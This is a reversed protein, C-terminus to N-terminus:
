ARGREYKESSKITLCDEVSYIPLKYVVDGIAVDKYFFDDSISSSLWRYSKCFNYISLVSDSDSATLFCELIELTVIPIDKGLYTQLPYSEPTVVIKYVKELKDWEVSSFKQTKYDLSSMCLIDNAKELQVQGRNLTKTNSKLENISDVALVAKIECMLAERPNDKSVIFLDVDTSIGDAEIEVEYEFDYEGCKSVLSAIREAVENSRNGIINAADDRYEKLQSLLKLINREFKCNLVILPSWSVYEDTLLIPQIFIDKNEKRSGFALLRVIRRLVGERLRTLRKMKCFFSSTPVVQVPSCERQPLGSRALRWYAEQASLSWKRLAIWFTNFEKASIGAFVTTDSLPIVERPIEHDPFSKVCSIDNFVIRGSDSDTKLLCIGREDLVDRGKMKELQAELRSCFGGRSFVNKPAFTVVRDRENVSVNLMDNGFMVYHSAVTAYESAFLLLRGALEVPEDNAIPVPDYLKGFLEQYWKFAWVFGEEYMKYQKAFSYVHVKDQVAEIIMRFGDIATLLSYLVIGPEYTWIRFKKYEQDLVESEYKRMLLESKKDM